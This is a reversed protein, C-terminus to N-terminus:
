YVKVTITTEDYYEFCGLVNAIQQWREWALMRLKLDCCGREGMEM